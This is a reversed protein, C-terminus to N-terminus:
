AKSLTISEAFQEQKQQQALFIDHGPHTVPFDNYSLVQFGLSLKARIPNLNADYTEETISFDTIRVPQARHKGWVLILFPATLAAVELVGEQLLSANQKVQVSKPYVLMELASLQPYIGSEIAQSDARELQDIADIYVENFKLTEIPAGKLHQVEVKAGGEQTSQPQLTRSIEKPNYQLQIQNEISQGDIQDVITLACKMLRPPSFSVGM